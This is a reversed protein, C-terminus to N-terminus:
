LEDARVVGLLRGAPTTVIAYKLNRKALREALEKSTLDARVTSPGAEMVAEAVEDGAADRLTSPRLRGLVVRSSTVVLAFGYPSDDVRARVEAVRDDLACTVVDDHALRVATPVEAHEGEVSLGNAM